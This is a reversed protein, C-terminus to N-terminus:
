AVRLTAGDFPRRQRIDLKTDESVMTAGSGFLTMVPLDCAEIKTELPIQCTMVSM